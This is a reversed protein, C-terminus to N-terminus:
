GAVVGAIFLSCAGIFLSGNELEKGSYLGYVAFDEEDFCLFLCSLPVLETGNGCTGTLKIIKGCSGGM